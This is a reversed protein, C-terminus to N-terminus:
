RKHYANKEVKIYQKLDDWTPVYVVDQLPVEVRISAKRYDIAHYILVMLSLMFVIPMTPICNMTVGSFVAIGLVCGVCEDYTLALIGLVIATLAFSRIGGWPIRSHSPASASFLSM